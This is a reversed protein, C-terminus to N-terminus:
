FSISSDSFTVKSHSSWPLNLSFLTAQASGQLFASKGLTAQSLRHLTGLCPSSGLLFSSTFWRTTVASSWAPPHKKEYQCYMRKRGVWVRPTVILNPLNETFSFLCNSCFTCSNRDRVPISFASLSSYVSLYGSSFDAIVLKFLFYENRNCM